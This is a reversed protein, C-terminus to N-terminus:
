RCHAGPGSAAVSLLRSLNPLSLDRLTHISADSVASAHPILLHM